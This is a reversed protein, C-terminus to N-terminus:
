PARGNAHPGPAARRAELDELAAVRRELEGVELCKLLLAALGAIANAPRPDLLGKRVQNITQGLLALVDGVTRLELNPTDPPLVAAKRSRARGGARCAARRRCASAPDHAFCYASNSVAM